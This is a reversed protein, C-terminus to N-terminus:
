LKVFASGDECLPRFRYGGERIDLHLPRIYSICRMDFVLLKGDRWRLVAGFRINASETSAGFSLFWSAQPINFSDDLSIFKEENPCYFYKGQDDPIKLAIETARCIGLNEFIVDDQFNRKFKEVAEVILPMVCNTSLNKENYYM